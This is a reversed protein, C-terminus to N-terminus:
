KSAVLNQLSAIKARFESSAENTMMTWLHHGQHFSHLFEAPKTRHVRKKQRKQLASLGCFLMGFLLAYWRNTLERYKVTLCWVDFMLCWVDFILCWVDFMLYRWQIGWSSESLWFVLRTSDLRTSDLRTTLGVEHGGTTWGADLIPHLYM